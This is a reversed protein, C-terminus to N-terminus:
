FCGTSSTGSNTRRSHFITGQPRNLDVSAIDFSIAAPHCCTNAATYIGAIIYLTVNYHAAFTGNDDVVSSHIGLASM